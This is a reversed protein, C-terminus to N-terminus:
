LNKDKQKFSWNILPLRRKQNVNWLGIQFGRLYASNILGIQVGRCYMNHNGLTAITLGNVMDQYNIIGSISVGNVKTELSAALSIDLGYIIQEEAVNLTGVQLGYIRKVYHRGEIYSEMTATNEEEEDAVGYLHMDIDLLAHFFFMVSGLLGMPSVNLEMGYVSYDPFMGERPFFNLSLGYIDTAQSPSFWIAYKKQVGSFGRVKWGKAKAIGPDCDASGPNRNIYITKSIVNDHLTAFLNNLAEATLQNDFCSFETLATNQSVDLATLQNKYCFLGKLAANQSVDLATLKNYACNLRELAVNRSVDLVILQNHTLVLYTLAENQSLDISTLQNNRCELRILAPNRSVDLEILKMYNCIFGTINSGTISIQHSSSTSYIHNFRNWENEIIERTETESGDGWDVTVTGTVKLSFFVKEANTTMTIIDDNSYVSVDDKSAYLVGSLASFFVVVLFIM